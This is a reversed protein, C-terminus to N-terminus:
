VWVRLYFGRLHFGRLKRELKKVLSQTKGVGLKGNQVIGLVTFEYIFVESNEKLGKSWVELKELESNEM